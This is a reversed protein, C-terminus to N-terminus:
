SEDIFAKKDVVKFAWSVKEKTFSEIIPAIERNEWAYALLKDEDVVEVHVVKKVEDFIGQEKCWETAAEADFTKTVRKERKLQRSGVPLWYNGKDDEQGDKMIYRTLSAKLEELRSIVKDSMSKTDLYESTLRSVDDPRKNYLEKTDM